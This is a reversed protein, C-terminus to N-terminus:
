QYTVVVDKPGLVEMVTIQAYFGQEDKLGIAQILELKVGNSAEIHEMAAYVKDQMEDPWDLIGGLLMKDTPVQAEWVRPKRAKARILQGTM